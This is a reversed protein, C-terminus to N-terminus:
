EDKKPNKAAEAGAVKAAKIQDGRTQEIHAKVVERDAGVRFKLSDKQEQTLMAYMEPQMFQAKGDARKRSLAVAVGAGGHVTADVSIAMLYGTQTEVLEECPWAGQARLAKEAKEDAPETINGTKPNMFRM